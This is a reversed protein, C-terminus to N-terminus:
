LAITEVIGSRFQNNIYNDTYVTVMYYREDLKQEISVYKNGKSKFLDKNALIKELYERTDDSLLSKANDSFEEVFNNREFVEKDIGLVNNM